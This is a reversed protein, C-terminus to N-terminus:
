YRAAPGLHGRLLLRIQVSMVFLDYGSIMETVVVTVEVLLTRLALAAFRRLPVNLCNHCYALQRLSTPILYQSALFAVLLLFKTHTLSLSLSILERNENVDLM